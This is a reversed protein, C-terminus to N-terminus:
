RFPAMRRLQQVQYRFSLVFYSTVAKIGNCFSITQIRFRIRVLRKTLFDRYATSSRPLSRVTNAHAANYINQLLRSPRHLPMPTPREFLVPVHLEFGSRLVLFGVCSSLEHSAEIFQSTFHEDVRKSSKCVLVKYRREYLM